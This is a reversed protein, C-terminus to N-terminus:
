ILLSSRYMNMSDRAWILTETKKYSKDAKPLFATFLVLAEKRSASCVQM